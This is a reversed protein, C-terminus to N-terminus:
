KCLDIFQNTLEEIQKLLNDAKDKNEESIGKTNVTKEIKSFSKKFECFYDQKQPKEKKESTKYSNLFEDVMPQTICDEDKYKEYLAEQTSIDLKAIECAVSIPLKDECFLEFFNYMLNKEISTYRQVQTESMGLSQALFARTTNPVEEGNKKLSTYTNRLVKIQQLIDENTLDRQESNTTVILFRVKEDYSLNVKLDDPNVVKCPISSFETYGEEVLQKLATYRREGSLLVYKGESNQPLVVPPEQLGATKISHKLTDIDTISYFNEKNREIDEINVTVFSADTKALQTSENFIDTYGTMQFKGM